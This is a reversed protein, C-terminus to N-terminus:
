VAARRRRAVATGLLGTVFLLAAGPVPVASYQFNDIAGTSAFSFVARKVGIINLAISEYRNNGPAGDRLLSDILNDASDYFFAEFEENGDIDLLDFGLFTQAADFVLEITGGRGNDDPDSSDFDETIILINGFDDRPNLGSADLFPGVLDTDGGTLVDSDFIMAANGNTGNGQGREGFITVGAYQAGVIDGSAVTGDDFSLTTVSASASAGASLAVAAAALIAKRM